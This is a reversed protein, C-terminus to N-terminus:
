ESQLLYSLYSNPSPQLEGGGTEYVKFEHVITGNQSTFKVTHMYGGGGSDSFIEVPGHPEFDQPLDGKSKLYDFATAIIKQNKSTPSTNAPPNDEELDPDAPPLTDTTSATPGTSSAGSDATGNGEAGHGEDLPALQAPGEQQRGEETLSNTKVKKCAGLSLGLLLM